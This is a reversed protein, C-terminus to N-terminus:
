TDAADPLYDFEMLMLTHGFTEYEAAQVDLPITIAEDQTVELRGDGLAILPIDWIIGAKREEVGSGFDKVIAIDLTVDSNNRVADVSAVDAFYATISGSVEFTGSTLDFAGLVGVAKNPTVNNNVNITAETIFAFLPSPAANNSPRVLGMRIRSFDSSTNYATASEITADSGSESPKTDTDAYNSKDTAIFTLDTTIKDAQAINIATENLVAGELAEAQVDNTSGPNPIGLEREITWTQRNYLSSTTGVNKTVGGFFMQVTEGGSLTEDGMETEGDAGGSTKDFTIDGTAVASVDAVRAFGNNAANTFQTAATDGGIFVFEGVQLGLTSLDATSLLQPLAVGPDSDISADDAAFEFGVLRMRFTAGPTETTFTSAGFTLTGAAEATLIHLGNNAANTMGTIFFIMGPELNATEDSGMSMTTGTTGVETVASAAGEYTLKNEKTSQFMSPWLHALNSFTIDQNLGGSADLDTIVGKKRQRGSNIPNRAVLALQAGFDSYSNPELEYWVPSGPLVGISTEAAMKTSTSNSDIKVQEAM